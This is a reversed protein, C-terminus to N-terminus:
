RIREVKRIAYRAWGDPVAVTITDGVVHGILASGVPSDTSVADEVTGIEEGDVLNFARNVRAALDWAIVRDGVNIHHPDPDEDIVEARELVFKLHGVREDAFEKMTQADFDAAEDEDDEENGEDTMSELQERRAEQEAEYDALEAKLQEYGHRTLVFKEEQM